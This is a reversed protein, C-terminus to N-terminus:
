ITTNENECSKEQKMLKGKIIKEIKRNYRNNFKLINYYQGNSEVFLVANNKSTENDTSTREINEEETQLQQATPQEAENEAKQPGPKPQQKLQPEETNLSCVCEKDSSRLAQLERKAEDLQKQLEAIETINEKTETIEPEHYNLHVYMKKGAFKFKIKEEKGEKGEQKLCLTKIRLRMKLYIVLQLIKEVLVLKIINKCKSLDKKRKLLLFKIILLLSAGKIGAAIIASAPGIPSAISVIALSASMATLSYIGAQLLYVYKCSLGGDQKNNDVSNSKDNTCSYLDSDMFKSFQENLDDLNKALVMAQNSEEQKLTSVDIKVGRLGQNMTRMSEKVTQELEKTKPDSQGADRVVDNFKKQANSSTGVLMNKMQESSINGNILEQFADRLKTVKRRKLLIVQECNKQEKGRLENCDRMAKEVINDPSNEDVIKGDIVPNLLQEKGPDSCPLQPDERLRQLEGKEPLAGGKKSKSKRKQKKTKRKQKKGKKSKRQKRLARFKRTKIKSSKSKKHHTKRSKKFIKHKITM